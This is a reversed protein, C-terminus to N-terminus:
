QCESRSIIDICHTVNTSMAVTFLIDVSCPSKQVTHLLQPSAPGDHAMQLISFHKKVCAATCTRGRMIKGFAVRKICHLKSRRGIAKWYQYWVTYAGLVSDLSGSIIEGVAEM